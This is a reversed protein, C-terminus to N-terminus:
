PAGCALWALSRSQDTASLGSGRPMSGSDIASEISSLSAQVAAQTSFQPHCGTCNSALFSQGYGVYTDNGSCVPASGCGLLLTLALLLPIALRSM